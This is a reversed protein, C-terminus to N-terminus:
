PAENDSVGSSRARTLGTDSSDSDSWGRVTRSDRRSDNILRQLVGQAALESNITVLSTCIHIQRRCLQYESAAIAQQLNEGRDIAQWYTNVHTIGDFLGLALKYWPTSLCDGIM